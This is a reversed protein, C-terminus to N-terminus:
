IIGSDMVKGDPEIHAKCGSLGRQFSLFCLLGYGVGIVVWLIQLMNRHFASILAVEIICASTMFYVFKSLRRALHYNMIIYILGYPLVAIGFLRLLYSAEVYRAGFLVWIFFGPFLLLLIGGLSLSGGALVLARKVAGRSSEKLAERGSVWPILVLAVSIPFFLLAKGLVSAASYLGADDPPFYHKVLVLDMNTLFAFCLLAAMVPVWNRFGLELIRESRVKKDAWVFGRLPVLSISWVVVASFLTALLAGNLQYGYAVLGIGFLLRLMGALSQNLALHIFRRLGQLIGLGTSTALTVVVVMGLIVVPIPSSINLFGSAPKSLAAVLIFGFGAIGFVRCLMGRFFAGVVDDQAKATLESVRRAMVVLIAGSPISIVALLSLLSNLAGFDAMSLNRSMYIQFLYHGINGFM